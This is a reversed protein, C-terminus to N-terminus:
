EKDNEDENEDINEEDNEDEKKENEDFDEEDNEDEKKGNKDSDEEDNESNKARKKNLFENKMSKKILFDLKKQVIKFEKHLTQVEKQLLQNERRLTQVEKQLTQNEKQLTQNEKQLTQVKNILKWDVPYAINKGCFIDNKIGLVICELDGVTNIDVYANENKKLNVFGLYLIDEHIIKEFVEKDRHLQEILNDIKNKNYKIEIICYKYNKNGINNFIITIENPDFHTINFKDFIGYIEIEKSSEVMFDKNFITMIINNNENSKFIKNNTEKETVFCSHDNEDFNIFFKKAEINLFPCIIYDKNKYSIKRYSFHHPITTINWNYHNILALIINNEFCQDKDNNKDIKITDSIIEWFSKFGTSKSMLEGKLKNIQEDTLYNYEM